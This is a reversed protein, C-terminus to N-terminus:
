KKMYFVFAHYIVVQYLRNKNKWANHRVEIVCLCFTCLIKNKLSLNNIKKLYFLISVNKINCVSSLQWVNSTETCLINFFDFVESKRKSYFCVRVHCKSTYETPCICCISAEGKTYISNIMIAGQNDKIGIITILNTSLM